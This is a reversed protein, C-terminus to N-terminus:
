LNFKQKTGQVRKNNKDTQDENSYTFSAVRRVSHHSSNTSNLSEGSVSPQTALAKRPLDVSKSEKVLRQHQQVPLVAPAGDAYLMKYNIDDITSCGAQPHPGLSSPNQAFDNSQDALNDASLSPKMMSPCPLTSTSSKQRLRSLLPTSPGDESRSCRRLCRSRRWKPFPM